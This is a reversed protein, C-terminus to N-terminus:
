VLAGAEVLARELRAQRQRGARYRDHHAMDPRYVM